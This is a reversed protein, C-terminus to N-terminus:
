WCNRDEAMNWGQLRRGSSCHDNEWAHEAIVSKETMGKECADALPYLIGSVNSQEGLSLTDKVKTLM